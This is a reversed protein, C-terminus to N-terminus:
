VVDAITGQGTEALTGDLALALRTVPLDPRGLEHLDDASRLPFWVPVPGKSGAAWARVALLPGGAALGVEVLDLSRWTAGASRRRMAEAIPLPEDWATQAAQDCLGLAWTTVGAELPGISPLSAVAAANRLIHPVAGGIRGRSGDVAQRWTLDGTRVALYEAYGLRVTVHPRRPPPGVGGASVVRGVAVHWWELDHGFFGGVRHHVLTADPRDLDDLTGGDRPLDRHPPVLWRAPSVSLSLALGLGETDVEDLVVLGLEAGDATGGARGEVTGVLESRSRRALVVLLGARGDHSVLTWGRATACADLETARDPRRSRAAAGDTPPSPTKSM